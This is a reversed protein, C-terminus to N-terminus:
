IFFGEHKEKQMWLRGIEERHRGAQDDKKVYKYFCKKCLKVGSGIM